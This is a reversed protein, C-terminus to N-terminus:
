SGTLESVLGPAPPSSCNTAAAALSTRYHYIPRSSAARAPAAAAARRAAAGCLWAITAHAGIRDRRAITLLVMASPCTPWCILSCM